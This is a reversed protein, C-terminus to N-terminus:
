PLSMTSYWHFKTSYVLELDQRRKGRLTHRNWANRRDWRVQLNQTGGGKKYSLQLIRSKGARNISLIWHTNTSYIYYVLMISPGRLMCPWTSDSSCMNASFTPLCRHLWIKLIDSVISHGLICNAIEHM